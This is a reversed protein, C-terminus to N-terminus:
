RSWRYGVPATAGDARSAGQVPTRPDATIKRSIGLGIRRTPM